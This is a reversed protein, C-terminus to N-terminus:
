LRPTRLGALVAFPHPLDDGLAPSTPAHCDDHSIILPLAMLLEDELLEVADFETSLVLLDEECGDDEALATAEDAVCRFWRDVMLEITLPELCRQCQQPLSIQAQLRLWVQRRSDVGRIEGSLSWACAHDAGPQTEATCVTTVRELEALPTRLSLRGAADAFRQLDLSHAQWTNTM